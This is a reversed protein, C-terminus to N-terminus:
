GIAKGEIEESYGDAWKVVLLVDKERKALAM